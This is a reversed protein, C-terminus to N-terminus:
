PRRAARHARGGSPRCIVVIRSVVFFWGKSSTFPSRTAKPPLGTTCPMSRCIAAPSFSASTPSDPEPLVTVASDSSRSTCFASRSPTAVRDPDCACRPARSRSDIGSRSSRPMRPLSIAIIKWSGIVASLASYVTPSWIASTSSNCSPSDARAACSAETCSSASVPMGSGARRALDYGCWSEPPCRWRAMIAIARAQLGRRSSASSGVVASSTVTRACIRSSSASSCRLYPMATSSM